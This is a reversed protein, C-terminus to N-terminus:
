SFRAATEEGQERGSLVDHSGIKPESFEAEGICGDGVPSGPLSSLVADVLIEQDHLRRGLALEKETGYGAWTDADGKGFVTVGADEDSVQLTSLDKVSFFLRQARAFAM